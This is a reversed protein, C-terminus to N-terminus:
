DIKINYKGSQHTSSNNSNVVNGDGTVLNSKDVNGGISISRDNTNETQLPQKQTGSDPEAASVSYLDRLLAAFGLVYDQESSLNHYHLRGLEEPVDCPLILLPIVRKELTLASEWEWEVYKSAVAAPTLLVVVTDATRINQRLQEKWAQGGQMDEIDRWVQFGARELESRLRTAAVKGDARAYSLFINPM